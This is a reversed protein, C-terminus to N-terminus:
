EEIEEGTTHIDNIEDCNIISLMLITFIILRM